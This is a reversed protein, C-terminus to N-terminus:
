LCDGEGVLERLPVRLERRAQRLGRVRAVREGGFQTDCRSREVLRSLRAPCVRGGRGLVEAPAFRLETGIESFGDGSSRREVVRQCFRFGRMLRRSFAGRDIKGGGVLALRREFVQDSLFGVPAGAEVPSEGVGLGRMLLRLPSVRRRKRVKLQPMVGCELPLRGFRSRRPRREFARQGFRLRCLLQCHLAGRLVQGGGRGTLHRELVPEGLFSVSGGAKFPLQGAGLRRPLIGFLPM